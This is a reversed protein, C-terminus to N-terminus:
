IVGIVILIIFTEGVVFSVMNAILSITFTHRNTVPETLDGTRHMRRFIWKLVLFEVFVVLIESLLVGIIDLTLSAILLQFAPNSIANVLLVWLFLKLKSKLCSRLFVYIVLYEIIVTAYYGIYFPSRPYIYDIFPGRPGMNAYSLGDGSLWLLCVGFIMQVLQKKRLM